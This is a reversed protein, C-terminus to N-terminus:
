LATGTPITLATELLQDTWQAGKSFSRSEAMFASRDQTLDTMPRERAEWLELGADVTGAERLAVGLTHANVIAMGAGQAMAPCMANAADGVLAVRGKRWPTVKRTQYSDHRGGEAQAALEVLPALLPFRESWAESDIPISSARANATEAMLGVYIQGMGCPVYLVRMVDPDFTWFDIINDWEKGAFSEPRPILLRVVGDRYKHREQEFDLSDRVASGAGDAGVILDAQLKEGAATEIVGIPDASVIRSNTMVEIGAAIVAAAMTSHLNPRSMTWYPFDPLELSVTEGNRRTEYFPPMHSHARVEEGVGLEDLALMGNRWILIGAGFDRVESGAEHVRVSWGERHLSLATALGAFGAGVVEAHPKASNNDTM